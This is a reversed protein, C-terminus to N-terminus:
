LRSAIHLRLGKHHSRQGAAARVFFEHVIVHVVIGKVRRGKMALLWLVRVVLLEKAVAMAVAKAVRVVLLELRHLALLRLLDHSTLALM